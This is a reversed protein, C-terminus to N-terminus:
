PFALHTQGDLLSGSARTGVKRLTTTGPTDPAVVTGDPMLGITEAGKRAAEWCWEGRQKFFLAIDEAACEDRLSRAWDPHMPRAKTGSEGGVIVLDLGMEKLTGAGPAGATGGLAGRLEVRELLPEASIFRTQAQSGLLLPIRERARKQDEVSVGVWVNKLPWALKATMDYQRMEAEVMKPTAPDNLWRQMRDARKTLVQYTHRGTLAMVAWVRAIATDALNKHFLDSMSNVFIKRPARWGFPERLSPEWLRVVDTWVANDNVADTTGAYKMLHSLRQHAYSMAYCNTCGPSALSCGAVVNWTDDTWQIKTNKSAM